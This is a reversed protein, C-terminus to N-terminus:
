FKVSVNLTGALDRSAQSGFQGGAQATVAVNRSVDGTVGALVEAQDRNGAQCDRVGDMSSCFDRTNHLWNAEVFPQVRQTKTVAKDLWVRVGTRSFMNGDGQQSVRTGNAERHEDAKVGMRTVQARPRIFLSDSNQEGGQWVALDYGGELSLTTGRADYKEAALDDGKVQNKLWSYQLTTSVYAGPQGERHQRWTGYIGTSYGSVTGRARYGTMGSRNDGSAHGYGAQFGADLYGDKGASLSLVTGGLQVVYRNYDSKLQGSADHRTSHGGTQSLWLSSTETRGTVPDTYEGVAQRQDSGTLFLTNAQRMNEGYAAAEPRYKHVPEPTPGPTPGPVATSILRWETMEPTEYRVLDYDYTGAVIRGDKTFGEGTTSKAAVVTIGEVTTGGEGGLNNVKVKTTKGSATGTITLTPVVTDDGGLRASTELRANEGGIYDGDIVLRNRSIDITGNNETVASKLTSPMDERATLTRLIGRNDVNKIEGCRPIAESDTFTSEWVGKESNVVEIYGNEYERDKEGKVVDGHIYGNNIIKISSNDDYSVYAYGGAEANIEGNNEITLIGGEGKVGTVASLSGYSTIKGNNVININGYKNEIEIGRDVFTIEGNNVLQGTRLTNEANVNIGGEDGTMHAIILGDNTLYSTTIEKAIIIGTERNLISPGNIMEGEMRGANTIKNAHVNGNIIGTKENMVVSSLKANDIITGILGYNTISAYDSTEGIKIMEASAGADVNLSSDSLVVKKVEADKKLEVVFDININYPNTVRIENTVGSVETITKGVKAQYNTLTTIGQTGGGEYIIRARTDGPTDSRRYITHDDSDRVVTVESDDLYEYSEPAGEAGAVGGTLIMILATVRANRTRKDM